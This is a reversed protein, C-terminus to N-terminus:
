RLHFLRRPTRKCLLEPEQELNDVVDEVCVPVYALVAGFAGPAVGVLGGLSRSRPEAFDVSVRGDEAVDDVSEGHSSRSRSAGRRALERRPPADQDRTRRPMRRWSEARDRRRARAAAAGRARRRRLAPRISWR